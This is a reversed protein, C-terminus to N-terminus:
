KSVTIQKKAYTKIVALAAGGGALAALQIVEADVGVLPAVTLAGIFAEIFTWATREIMDKLQESMKYSWADNWPTWWVNKQFTGDSKRKRKGQAFM